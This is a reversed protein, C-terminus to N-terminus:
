VHQDDADADSESDDEAVPAQVRVEAASSSPVPRSVPLDEFNLGEPVPGVKAKGHTFYAKIKKRRECMILFVILLFFVVGIMVGIKIAIGNNGQPQQQRQDSVPGEGSLIRRGLSQLEFAKRRALKWICRGPSFYSKQGETTLLSLNMDVTSRMGLPSPIWTHKRRQSLSSDDMM